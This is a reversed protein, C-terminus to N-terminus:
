FNDEVTIFTQMATGWFTLERSSIITWADVLQAARSGEKPFALKTWKDNKHLAARLSEVRRAKEKAEHREKSVALGRKFSFKM